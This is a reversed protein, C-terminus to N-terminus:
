DGEGHIRGMSNELIYAAVDSGLIAGEECAARFHIGAFVRADGVEDVATSFSPYFRVWGPAAPSQLMFPTADGFYGATRHGGRQLREFPRVHVGSAGSDRIAADM